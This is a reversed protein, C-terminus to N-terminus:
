EVDDDDYLKEHDKQNCSNLMEKVEAIVEVLHESLILDRERCELANEPLQILTKYDKMVSVKLAVGFGADNTFPIILKDTVLKPIYDQVHSKIWRFYLKVGTEVVPVVQSMKTDSSNEGDGVYLEKELEESPRCDRQLFKYDMSFVVSSQVRIYEIIQKKLEDLNEDLIHNIVRKFLQRLEPFYKFAHDNEEALNRDAIKMIEDYVREACKLAPGEIHHIQNQALKRFVAEPNLFMSDYSGSNRFAKFIMSDTISGDSTNEAAEMDKAFHKEFIDKIVIGGYLHHYEPTRPSGQIEKKIENEFRHLVKIVFELKDTETMVNPIETLQKNCQKLMDELKEMLEPLCKYIHQVLLENLRKRLFPVGNQGILDGYNNSLFSKEKAIQQEVTFNNEIDKQSRNVVGIMGLKVQVDKSMGTLLGRADTGEDMLDLKTLVGITRNGEPDAEKALLLGESNCIEYNAPSVALIIANKENIYKRSLSVIRKDLDSPEGYSAIRKIGPLDVVTLTVVNPSYVRVIIPTDVIAGGNREMLTAIKARVEDYDQSRGDELFDQLEIGEEEKGADTTILQVIIPCKTVTGSGRPLISFGVLGDLVSSKGSSQSGVVVIQPLEIKRTGLGNSKFYNQLKNVLEILGRSDPMISSLGSKPKSANPFIGLSRITLSPFSMKPMTLWPSSSPLLTPFFLQNVFCHGTTLSDGSRNWHM